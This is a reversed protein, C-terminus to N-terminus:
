FYDNYVMVSSWCVAVIEGLTLLLAIPKFRATHWLRLSIVAAILLAVFAGVSIAADRWPGVGAAIMEGPDLSVPMFVFITALTGGIALCVLSITWVLATVLTRM